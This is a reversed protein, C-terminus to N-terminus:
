VCRTIEGNEYQQCYKNSINNRYEEIEDKTNFWKGIQRKYVDLHTYSVASLSKLKTFWKTLTTVFILQNERRRIKKLM